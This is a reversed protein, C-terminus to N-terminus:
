TSFFEIFTNQTSRNGWVLNSFSTVILWAGWDWLGQLKMSPSPPLFICFKLTLSSISSSGPSRHTSLASNSIPYEFLPSFDSLLKLFSQGRCSAAESSIGLSQACAIWFSSCLVTQTLTINVVMLQTVRHETCPVSAPLWCSSSRGHCLDHPLLSSMRLPPISGWSDGQFNELM